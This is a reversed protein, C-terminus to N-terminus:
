VKLILPKDIMKGTDQTSSVPSSPVKMFKPTALFFPQIKVLTLKRKRRLVWSSETELKRKYSPPAVHSIRALPIYAFIIYGVGLSPEWFVM